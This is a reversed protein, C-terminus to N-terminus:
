SEPPKFPWRELLAHIEFRSLSDTRGEIDIVERDDPWITKQVCVVPQLGAPRVLFGSGEILSRMM